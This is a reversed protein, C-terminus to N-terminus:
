ACGSVSSCIGLFSSSAPMGAVRRVTAFYRSSMLIGLVWWRRSFLQAARVHLRLRSVVGPLKNDECAKGTGSFAGDEVGEFIHAEVAHVIKGYLEDRNKRLQVRCTFSIERARGQQHVCALAQL